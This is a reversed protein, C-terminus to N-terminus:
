PIQFLAADLADHRIEQLSEQRGSEPDRRMIPLREDTESIGPTSGDAQVRNMLAMMRFMAQLVQVDEGIGISEPRADCTEMLVRQGLRHEMDECLVGAIRRMRGTQQASAQRREQLLAMASGFREKMSERAQPPLQQLRQRLAQMKQQLQTAQQQLVQRNLVGYSQDQTNVIFLVGQQADFLMYVGKSQYFPNDIRARPGRIVIRDGPTIVGSQDGQQFSLTTDASVPAALAMLVIFFVLFRVHPM